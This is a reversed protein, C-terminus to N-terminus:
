EKDQAENILRIDNVHRMGLIITDHGPPILWGGRNPYHIDLGVLPDVGMLRLDTVTAHFWVDGAFQSRAMVEMGVSLQDKTVM